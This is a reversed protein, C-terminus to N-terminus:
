MRFIMHTRVFVCICVSNVATHWEIKKEKKKVSELTRETEKRKSYKVSKKKEDNHLTIRSHLFFALFFFFLTSCTSHKNYTCSSAEKCVWKSVERENANVREHQHTYVTCVTYFIFNFYLDVIMKQLQQQSRLRTWQNKRCFVCGGGFGVNIWQIFNVHMYESIRSVNIPVKLNFPVCKVSFLYCSVAHISNKELCASCKTIKIVFIWGVSQTRNNVKTFQVSPRCFTHCLLRIENCHLM